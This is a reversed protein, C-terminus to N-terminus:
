IYREPELDNDHTIQYGGGWQTTMIHSITVLIQIALSQTSLFLHIHLSVHSNAQKGETGSDYTSCIFMSFVWRVSVASKAFTLSKMFQTSASYTLAFIFSCVIAPRRKFSHSLCYMWSYAVVCNFHSSLIIFATLLEEPSARHKKWGARVDRRGREREHASLTFLCESISCYCKFFHHFRLEKKTSDCVSDREGNRVKYRGPANAAQRVRRRQKHQLCGASEMRAHGWLQEPTEGGREWCLLHMLTTM